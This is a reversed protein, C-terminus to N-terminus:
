AALCVVFDRLRAPLVRQRRSRRMVPSSDILSATTKEVFQNSRQTTEDPKANEQVLERQMQMKARQVQTTSVPTTAIQPATQSTCNRRVKEDVTQMILVNARAKNRRELLYLINSLYRLQLIQYCTTCPFGM